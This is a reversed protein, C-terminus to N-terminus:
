GCPICEVLAEGLFEADAAVVHLGDHVAADVEVVIKDVVVAKVEFSNAVFGDANEFFIRLKSEDGCVLLHLLCAYRLEEALTDDVAVIALSATINHDNQLTTVHMAVYTGVVFAGRVTCPVGVVRVYRQEEHSPM